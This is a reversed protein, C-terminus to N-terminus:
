SPGTIANHKWPSIQAGTAREAAAESTPPRRLARPEAEPTVHFGAAKMARATAPHRAMLKWIQGSRHNEIAVLAMGLDIGIVDEDYWGADVNFADGFGYRGWLKEGHERYMTQAAALSLQPTFPLSAIAGTPSVTGDEPGEPAGYAQYGGPGDSANLGWVNAGYTKRKDALHLCFLRNIQTAQVSSVWYDYGLRDRRNKLFYFGQPMQHMFIPGGHLTERGGYCVVDRAIATWSEPPLPKQAGLGLLYLMIAESYGGYNYPLFGSEPKWGHSLLKKEPQAVGNTRMWDWDVRDYLENAQRSIASNSFYVGCVIAGALLIATDISSVESNWVREGSHKDVFHHFWGRQHPMVALFKLTRAAREQGDRRSIWGNKVAVPIAALSYGTAAISAVSYDDTGNNRARDNVLGTKIDAKDEFFQWARRQVEQLLQADSLVPSTRAHASAALSFVVGLMMLPRRASQASHFNKM